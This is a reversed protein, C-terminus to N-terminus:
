VNKGNGAKINNGVSVIQNFTNMVDEYDARELEEKTLGIFVTELIGGIISFQETIDKKKITQAAEAARVFVGWPCINTAYQKVIEDDEGYIPLEFKAM